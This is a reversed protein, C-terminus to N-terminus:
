EELTIEFKREKTDAYTNCLEVIRKRVSVEEGCKEANNYNEKVKAKISDMEEQFQTSSKGYKEQMMINDEELIKKANEPMLEEYEEKSIIECESLSTIGQESNYEGQYLTDDSRVVFYVSDDGLIEAKIKQDPSIYNYYSSSVATGAENSIGQLNSEVKGIGCVGVFKGYDKYYVADDLPSLIIKEGKHKSLSESINKTLDKALPNHTAFEETRLAQEYDTMAKNYEKLSNYLEQLQEESLKKDHLKAYLLKIDNLSLKAEHKSNSMITDQYQEKEPRSYDDDFGFNHLIEHM